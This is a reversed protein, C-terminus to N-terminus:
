AMLVQRKTVKGSAMLRLLKLATIPVKGDGRKYRRSTRGAFDFLENCEKQDLGLQELLAEYERARAAYPRTTRKRGSRGNVTKRTTPM